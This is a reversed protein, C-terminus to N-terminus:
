LFYVQVFLRGFLHHAILKQLLEDTLVDARLGHWLHHEGPVSAFCQHAGEGEVFPHYLKLLTIRSTSGDFITNLRVASEQGIFPALEETFVIPQYANGDVPWLLKMVFVPAVSLSPRREDFYHLADIQQLFVSYFPVPHRYYIIVIGVIRQLEIVEELFYTTMVELEGRNHFADESMGISAVQGSGELRAVFQGVEGNRGFLPSVEETCKEVFPHFVIYASIEDLKEVGCQGIPHAFLRAYAGQGFSASMGSDHFEVPIHISAVVEDEGFELESVNVFLSQHFHHIAFSLLGESLVLFAKEGTLALLTFEEEGTVSFAGLVAEGDGGVSFRAQIIEALTVMLEEVM